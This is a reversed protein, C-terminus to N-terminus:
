PAEHKIKGNEELMNEMMGYEFQAFANKLDQYLREDAPPMRYGDLRDFADQLEDYDMNQAARAIQAYFGALMADDIVPKNQAAADEGAPAATKAPAPQETAKAPAASKAPVAPQAPAAAAKGKRPKMMGAATLEPQKKPAAPQPASAQAKPAQPAPPTPKAGEPKGATDPQRAGGSQGAADPQRAGGGQEATDPKRAGGGQESPEPRTGWAAGSRGAPKKQQQRQQRFGGRNTWDEEQGASRQVVLPIALHYVARYAAFLLLAAAAAFLFWLVNLKRASRAFEFACVAYWGNSLRVCSCVTRGSRATYHGSSGAGQMLERYFEKEDTGKKLFSSGVDDTVGHAVVTGDQELVFLHFENEKAATFAADGASEAQQLLRSINQMANAGGSRLNADVDIALQM